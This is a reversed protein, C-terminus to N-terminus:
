KLVKELPKFKNETGFSHLCNLQEHLLIPLKRQLIIGVKEM